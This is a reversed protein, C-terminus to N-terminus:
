ETIHNLICNSIRQIDTDSIESSLPLCLVRTSIDEAVPMIQETVYPLKNLSPYFYRRPFINNENLAKMVTLLTQENAFVIPFYSFNHLVNSKSNILYLRDDNGLLQTYLEVAHKRHHVIKGMHPLVSLGMAGHFESVKGNVGVGQFKEPGDHGFNRMYEIRVALDDDNTVIAGGEGTHFIKTAHFSLTSIDGHNLISVGARKVGFAHAADYIVKLKHKTAIRELEMVDCPHGYVHTALIATTNKTIAEEIKSPDICFDRNNIDVFVPKCNEWVISSVTAVYSFPTTIIERQLDLAKIAIQLAITGNNVLFLHKVGLHKKLELELQLVNPGHNTLHGSEWIDNIRKQYEEIPPLFSQTVYIPKQTM